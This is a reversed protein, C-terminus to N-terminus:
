TAPAFSGVVNQSVAIVVFLETATSPPLSFPVNLTLAVCNLVEPM